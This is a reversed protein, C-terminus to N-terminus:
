GIFFVGAGFGFVRDSFNLDHSMQLAAYAVNVRDLFAIVYLLWLFPLLCRTIRRTASQAVAAPPLNM